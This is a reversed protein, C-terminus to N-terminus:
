RDYFVECIVSEVKEIIEATRTERDEKVDRETPPFDDENDSEASRRDGKGRRRGYMASGAQIDEEISLYVAQVAKELTAADSTLSM